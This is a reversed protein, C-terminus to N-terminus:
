PTAETRPVIIIPAYTRRPDVPEGVAQGTTTEVWAHSSVPGTAAGIVRTISRRRAACWLVIALSRRLCGWDSACHLSVATVARHAMTAEALSAPRHAARAAVTLLQHLWGPRRRTTALLVRAAVVSLLAGARHTWCLSAPEPLALPTSM